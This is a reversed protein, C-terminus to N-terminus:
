KEISLIEKLATTMDYKPTYGIVTRLKENNGIISKKFKLPYNEHLLGRKM